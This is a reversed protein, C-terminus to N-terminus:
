VDPDNISYGMQTIRHELAKDAKAKGTFFALRRLSNPLGQGCLEDFDIATGYVRLHELKPLTGLGDLTTMAKCNLVRLYALNEMTASFRLSPLQIQDEIFLQKLSRWQPLHHFHSFGRVRVIELIEIVEGTLEDIDDRGGLILKLHRLAKMNNVFELRVQRGINLSLHEVNQLRGVVDINRSHGSIHLDTLGAMGGIPALDITNKRANGVILRRLGTLNPSALINPMNLEFIDLALGQLHELEALVEIHDAQTLCDVFLSKVHPIRQLVRMDFVAGYHGYFRICLREDFIRCLRDVDKLIDGAYAQADSFQVTLSRADRLGERVETEDLRTPNQIRGSYILHDGLAYSHSYSLMKAFFAVM